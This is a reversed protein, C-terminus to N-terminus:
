ATRAYAACDNGAHRAAAAAREALGAISLAVEEARELIVNHGAGELRVLEANALHAALVVSHAFPIMIDASGALVLAPISGLRHLSGTEDFARLSALFGAMTSLSTENLMTAALAVVRPPVKRSGFAVERAIPEFIRRSLRRSMHLFRPARHVALQLSRVTHGNLLRGLGVQTVGNAAGAILGVGVVRTGIAEPYLRSYALVVMAGMSHGVLIVPGRAAVARLVADLDHALQDITYTSPDSAGSAGHGRHDYFVMRTDSGWHRNLQDRLYSWSEGRLCHGHVFVVTTPANEAGTIRVALPVGDDAAVTCARGDRAITTISM